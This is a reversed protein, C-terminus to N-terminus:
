RMLIVENSLLSKVLPESPRPFPASLNQYKLHLFSFQHASPHDLVELTESPLDPSILVVESFSDAHMHIETVLQMAM